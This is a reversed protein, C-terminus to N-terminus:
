SSENQISATIQFQRLVEVIEAVSLHKQLQESSFDGVDSPKQSDPKSWLALAVSEIAQWNLGVLRESEMCLSKRASWWEPSGSPYMEDLLSNLQPLDYKLGATSCGYARSQAIRGAFLAIITKERETEPGVNTSGDPKRDVIWAIGNGWRDLQIGGVRLSLGQVAAIVIHGAEHFAVSRVYEVNPEM